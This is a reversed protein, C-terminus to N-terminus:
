SFYVKIRLVFYKIRTISGPYKMKWIHQLLSKKIIPYNLQLYILSIIKIPCSCQASFITHFVPMFFQLYMTYNKYIGNLFRNVMCRWHILIAIMDSIKNCVSIKSQSKMIVPYKKLIMYRNMSPMPIPSFSGVIFGKAFYELDTNVHRAPSSRRFKGVPMFPMGVSACIPIVPRGWDAVPWVDRHVPNFPGCIMPLCMVPKGPGVSTRAM